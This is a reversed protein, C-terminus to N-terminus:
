ESSRLSSSDRDSRKREPEFERYFDKSLDRWSPNISEILAIKKSRRWGKIEKERAIANEAYQFVGYWLLRDCGYKKTFASGIGQQHEVSRRRVNNTYGTYFTGSLSGMIYAFHKYIRRAM